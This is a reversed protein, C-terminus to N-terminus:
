KPLPALKPLIPEDDRPRTFGPPSLLVSVLFSELLEMIPDPRSPISAGFAFGPSLLVRVLFSVLVSRDAMAGLGACIAAVFASSKPSTTMSITSAVPRRFCLTPGIIPGAWHVAGLGNTFTVRARARARVRVRVMIM